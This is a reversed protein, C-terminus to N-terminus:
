EGLGIAKWVLNQRNRTSYIRFDWFYNYIRELQEDSCWKRPMINGKKGNCFECAPVINTGSNRGNKSRPIFHDKTLPPETETPKRLCYACRGRFYDLCRLWQRRKQLDSIEQNTRKRRKISLIGGSVSVVEVMGDGLSTMYEPIRHSKRKKKRKKRSM